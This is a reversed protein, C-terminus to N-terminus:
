VRPPNQTLFTSIDRVTELQYSRLNLRGKVVIPANDFDRVESWGQISVVNTLLDVSCWVVRDAKSRILGMQKESIARGGWEFQEAKWTKVELRLRPRQLFVDCGDNTMAYNPFPKLGAGKAWEYVAQEGMRGVLHGHVSNPYHPRLKGSNVLAMIDDYKRRAYDLDPVVTITQM